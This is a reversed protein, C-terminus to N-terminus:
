SRWVFMRSIVQVFECFRWLANDMVASLEFKHQLYRFENQMRAQYDDTADEELLGAQGFFFAEIQTLDDRHKDVARFPILNAWTEFADGNLGFGFNRALTIFFADEWNNNCSHLRKAIVDAKQQFRETQLASLWSHITLKPLASLVSYCPPYIDSAHLEEYHQKVHEPCVLLM